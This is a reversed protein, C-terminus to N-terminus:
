LYSSYFKCTKLLNKKDSLPGHGPYITSIDIKTLKELSNKMEKPNGTPFDMRGIGDRFVTDGSILIKSKEDYLCISGECHGPTHIVKFDFNGTKVIEDNKLRKSVKFGQFNPYIMSAVTKESGSEIDPADLEHAWIECSFYKNGGIHDIHCHTNILVDVRRGGLAKIVWDNRGLGSDILVNIDDEIFYCNSDM